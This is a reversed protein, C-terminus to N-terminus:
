QKKSTGELIRRTEHKYAEVNPQDFPNVECLAGLYMMEMMKFQMFQGISFATKDPLMIEVFPRNGKRYAAQVGELIAHM